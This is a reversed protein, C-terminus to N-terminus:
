YFSIYKIYGMSTNRVTRAGTKTQLEKTYKFSNIGQLDLEIAKFKIGLNSLVTKAKDCYKCSTTSFVVVCENLIANDVLGRNEVINGTSKSTSGGM